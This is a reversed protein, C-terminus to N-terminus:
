SKRYKPYVTIGTSTGPRKFAPGWVWDPWFTKSPREPRSRSAHDPDRVWIGPVLRGRHDKATGADVALVAHMGNFNYDTQYARINPIKGYNVSLIVPIRAEVKGKVQKMTLLGTTAPVGFTGLGRVAEYNSTGGCVNSGRQMRRRALQPGIHTDKYFGAIMAVCTANCNTSKCPASDADWQFQAPRQLIHTSRAM